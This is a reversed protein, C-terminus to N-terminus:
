CSRRRRLYGGIGGLGLVLGLMTVPEPIAGGGPLTDSLLVNDIYMGGGLGDGWNIGDSVNDTVISNILVLDAVRSYIGGGSAKIYGGTM